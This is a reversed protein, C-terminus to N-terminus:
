ARVHLRTYLYSYNFSPTSHLHVILISFYIFICPVTLRKFTNIIMIHVITQSSNKIQTFIKSWISYVYISVSTVSLLLKTM